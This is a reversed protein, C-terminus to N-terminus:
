EAITSLYEDIENFHEETGSAYFIQIEDEDIYMLAIVDDDHNGYFEVNLWHLPDAKVQYKERIHAVGAKDTELFEEATYELGFIAQLHAISNLFGSLHENEITWSTDKRLNDNNIYVPPDYLKLDDIRIAWDCVRQNETYFILYEKEAQLSENVLEEPSCLSDQTQNIIEDAGLELYYEKLLGPLAGWKQQGKEIEDISYGTNDWKNFLKRIVTFNTKTEM